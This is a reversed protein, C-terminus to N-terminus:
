KVVRFKGPMLGLEKLCKAKEKLIKLDAETEGKNLGIALCSIREGTLNGGVKMAFPCNRCLKILAEVKVERAEDKKEVKPNVDEVNMEMVSSEVEPEGNNRMLLKKLRDLM